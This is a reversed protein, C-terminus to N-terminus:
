KLGLVAFKANYEIYKPHKESMGYCSIYTGLAIAERRIKSVNKEPCIKYFELADFHREIINELIEQETKVSEM